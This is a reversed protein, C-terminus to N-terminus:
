WRIPWNACLLFFSYMYRKSLWIFSRIISKTHSQNELVFWIEIGLELVFYLVYYISVYFVYYIIIQLIHKLIVTFPCIKNKFNSWYNIIKLENTLLQYNTYIKWIYFPKLNNKKTYLIYVCLAGILISFESLM